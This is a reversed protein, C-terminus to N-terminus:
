AQNKRTFEFITKFDVRGLEGMEKKVIWKAKELEDKNKCVVVVTRVTTKLGERLNRVLNGFHLTVEFGLMGEGKKWALVDFAKQSGEMM